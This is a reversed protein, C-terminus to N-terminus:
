LNYQCGECVQLSQSTVACCKPCVLYDDKDLMLSMSVNDCPLGHVDFSIESKIENLMKNQYDYRYPRFIKENLETELENIKDCVSGDFDVNYLWKEPSLEIDQQIFTKFNCEVIVVNTAIGIPTIADEKVRSTRGKRQTNDAFIEIDEKINCVNPVTGKEKFFNKLTQVSGCAKSCSDLAHSAKSGSFSWKVLGEAFSFPGVYKSNRIGEINEILMCMSYSKRTNNELQKLNM